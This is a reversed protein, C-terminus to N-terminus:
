PCSAANAIIQGSAAVSVYRAGGQPSVLELCADTYSSGDAFISASPNPRAFVIDLSSLGGSYPAAATKCIGGSISSACFNNITIGNGIDYAQVLTDDSTYIKNGPKCNPTSCSAPPSTDAFLIYSSPSSGNSFHLGYGANYVTGRARSSVGFTQASRLSLAIDYATNSLILTRNFQGQNTLVVGTIVIIISLVVILEVLTFARNSKAGGASLVRAPNRRYLFYEM